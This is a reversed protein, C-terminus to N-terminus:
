VIFFIIYRYLLIEKSLFYLIKKVLKIKWARDKELLKWTDLLTSADTSRHRYQTYPQLKFILSTLRYSFVSKEAFFEGMAWVRTVDRSFLRVRSFDDLFRTFYTRARCSFYRLSRVVRSKRRLNLPKEKCVGQLWGVSRTVRLNHM